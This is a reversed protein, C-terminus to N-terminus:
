ARRDASRIREHGVHGYARVAGRGRRLRGLERGAADRAAELAAGIQAQLEAARELSPRAAEPPRAPLTAVVQARRAHLDPLEALRGARVLALEREALVVLHEYASV